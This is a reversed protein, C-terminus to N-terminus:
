LSLSSAQTTPNVVPELPSTGPFFSFRHCSIIIIIIIIIIIVVIVIIIIVIGSFEGFLYLFGRETCSVRLLGPSQPNELGFFSFLIKLGLLQFTTNEALDLDHTGHPKDYL